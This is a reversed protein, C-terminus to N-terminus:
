NEFLKLTSFDIIKEKILYILYGNAWVHKSQPFCANNHARVERVAHRYQELEDGSLNHDNEPFERIDSNIVTFMEMQLAENSLMDSTKAGSNEILECHAPLSSVFNRYSHIPVNPKIHFVESYSVGRQGAPMEYSKQLYIVTWGDREVGSSYQQFAPAFPSSSFKFEQAIINIKECVFYDFTLAKNLKNLVVKADKSICNRPKKELTELSSLEIVLKEHSNSGSDNKEPQSCGSTILLIPIIVLALWSRNYHRSDQIKSDGFLDKIGDLILTLSSNIRM